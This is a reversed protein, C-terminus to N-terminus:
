TGAETPLLRNFVAQYSFGKDDRGIPVLFLTLQGMRDHEIKYTQQVLFPELPGHFILSFREQRPTTGLDEAEVLEAEVPTSDNAYIRFKTNLHESFSALNL